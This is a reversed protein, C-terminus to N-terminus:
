IRWFPKGVRDAIESWCTGIDQLERASMVALQRRSRRRERGIGVRVVIAGIAALTSGRLNRSQRRRDCSYDACVRSLTESRPV